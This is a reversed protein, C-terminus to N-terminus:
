NLLVKKLINCFIRIENDNLLSVFQEIMSLIKNKRDVLANKGESTIIVITQRADKSSKIKKIYGKRSLTGLLVAVRATSVGFINSIEGATIPEKAENLIRLVVYMGSFGDQMIDYVQRLKKNCLLNYIYESTIDM